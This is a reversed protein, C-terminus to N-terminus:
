ARRAQVARRAVRLPLSELGRLVPPAARWRPERELLELSEFRRLLTELAVSGELRALPAGICFFPGHGFALHARTPRTLLLRDPRDFVSPDRNAAGISVLVEDGAAVSRGRLTVAETATLSVYQVPSEFRLLEEIAGPMLAPNARLQHEQPAHRVLAWVATGIFNATNEHGAFLFVLALAAFDDPDLRDEGQADFLASLVDDGRRREKEDLITALLARLEGAANEADREAGARGLITFLAGRLRRGIRAFREHAEEPIGLILATAELAFPDAYDRVLDFTQGHMDLLREAAATFRSTLAHTRTPGLLRTTAARLRSRGAPHMLALWRTVIRGLEGGGDAPAAPFRWHAFREDALLEAADRHRTVLWSGRATRHLPDSERLRDYHPYPDARTAPDFPDFM